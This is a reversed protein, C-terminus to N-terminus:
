KKGSRAKMMKFFEDRLKDGPAKSDKQGKPFEGGNLKDGIRSSSSASDPTVSTYAISSSVFVSDAMSRIIKLGDDANLIVYSYVPLRFKSTLPTRTAVTNSVPKRTIPDIEYPENSSGSAPAEDRVQEPAPFVYRALIVTAQSVQEVVEIAGYKKGDEANWKDIWEVLKDRVKVETNTAIFVKLPSVEPLKLSGAKIIPTERSVGLISRLYRLEHEKDQGFGTVSFGFLLALALITKFM